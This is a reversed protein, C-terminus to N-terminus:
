RLAPQPLDTNVQCSAASSATELRYRLDSLVPSRMQIPLQPSSSRDASIMSNRTRGACLREARFVVPEHRVSDRGHARPKARWYRKPPQIALASNGMGEGVVLHRHMNRPTGIHSFRGPMGVMRGDEFRKGAAYRQDGRGPVIGLMKEPRAVVVEDHPVALLHGRPQPLNKGVPIQRFRQGCGAAFRHHRPVGAAM